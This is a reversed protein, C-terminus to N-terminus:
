QAAPILVLGSIQLGLTMKQGTNDRANLEMTELKLAMPDKEISCLFQSLTELNGTAEVRCDLTIYDEADHKWQPMISTLSVCSRQSWVDFAKLLQQEALSSNMSLTNARMQEWRRRIVSERQLLSTGEAIQQRLEVINASRIKWLKTLPTYVLRDAALLAVVAMAAVALLQQHRSDIKM